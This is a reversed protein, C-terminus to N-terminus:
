TQMPAHTREMAAQAIVHHFSRDRYSPDSPSVNQSAVVHMLLLCPGIMQCDSHEDSPPLAVHSMGTCHCCAEKRFRLLFSKAPTLDNGGGFVIDDAAMYMGLRM